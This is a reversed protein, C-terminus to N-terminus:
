TEEVVPVGLFEAIQHALKLKEKSDPLEKHQITLFRKRQEMVQLLNAASTPHLDPYTDLYVNMESYSNVVIRVRKIVSIDHQSNIELKGNKETEFRIIKKNKDIITRDIIDKPIKKLISDFTFRLILLFIIFLIFFRYEIRFLVPILVFLFMMVLCSLPAELSSRKKELVLRNNNVLTSISITVGNGFERYSGVAINSVKRNDM